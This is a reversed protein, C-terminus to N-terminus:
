RSTMRKRKTQVSASSLQKNLYQWVILILAGEFILALITPLLGQGDLGVMILNYTLEIGAHILMAYGLFIWKRRQLSLGVLAGLGANFLLLALRDVLSAVAALSLEALPTAAMQALLPTSIDGLILRMGAGIMAFGLFIKTILGVGLGVAIGSPVLAAGELRKYRLVLYKMGEVFIGAWLAPIVFQLARSYAGPSSALIQRALSSVFNMPLLAVLLGGTGWWVLTRDTAPSRRLILFMVYGPLLIFLFGQSSLLLGRAFM